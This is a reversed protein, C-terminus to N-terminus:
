FFLYKVITAPLHGMLVYFVIILHNSLPLKYESSYLLVWAIFVFFLFVTTANISFLWGVLVAVLSLAFGIWTPAPVLLAIKQLM